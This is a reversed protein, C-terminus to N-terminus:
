KNNIIVTSNASANIVVSGGVVEFSSLEGVTDVKVSPKSATLPFSRILADRLAVSSEETIAISISHDPNAHKHGIVLYIGTAGIQFQASDGFSDTIELTNHGSTVHTSAM